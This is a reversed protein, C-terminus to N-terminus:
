KLKKTIVLILNQIAETNSKLIKEFRSALYICAVIPFGLSGVLQILIETEM